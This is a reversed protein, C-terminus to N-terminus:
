ISLLDVGELNRVFCTHKRFAVELDLDCFKRVSFLNHGLGEVYYVQSIIINEIQLDGYGMITVFHDSGFRVTAIFKSVFNILKDRHGTMHKSCGSDLYWLVIEVIGLYDFKWPPLEKNSWIREFGFDHLNFPHIDYNLFSKSLSERAKAYRLSIKPCPEDVLIVTTKLIKRPPVDITSMNRSPPCQKRVLNVTRGTPIWKLGVTKFIRGTPKWEFKEKQKVSKAKKRIQVDKLYKVACADHNASFLFENCSLCVNASNKSVAVNYMFLERIREAFKCAYVLNEDLPKLARAQELLEQLTEVHENTVKLYDQHVVRNNKFYANIPESEIKLLGPALVKACKEIIKNTTLHSTVTKTLDNKKVVKPIFQTKPLLTVFYLKIRLHEREKCLLSIQFALSVNEDEIKQIRSDFNPSECQTVQSKRLLQTLQHKLENIVLTKEELKVKLYNIDFSKINIENILSTDHLKWSDDCITKEKNHQLSLELSICYEELKAFRKTLESFSKNSEQQDPKQRLTLLAEKKEGKIKVKRKLEEVREASVSVEYSTGQQTQELVLEMETPVKGKNESKSRKEYRLLVVSDLPIDRPLDRRNQSFHTLVFYSLTMNDKGTAQSSERIRKWWHVERSKADIEESLTAQIRIGAVIDHLAIRVDNLTGDSFKHLEDVRMLRKRKFQDEKFTYLKQDDRYVEIEELHGYDYKKMITLRTVAIIRRRSYVDKSSTLNSAYGYFSQCKPGWHSTGFYAHQDYKLQVPSWLEPVLDEIWKLEYTAAKTLIEQTLNPIKLRNIVFASFYFSTDNLEDFSTPPEEAHAVQCDAKTVEKDAPQEDNDGTVFKQDQQMGSDEVTHSPEEVHASKGFSKQQSQSADKSTSSSKKEKSLRGGINSFSIYSEQFLLISSYMIFLCCPHIIRSDTSFPGSM